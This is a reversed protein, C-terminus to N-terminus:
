VPICGQFVGPIMKYGRIRTMYYEGTTYAQLTYRKVTHYFFSLDDEGKGSSDLDGVVANRQEPTSEGFSRGAKKEALGAFQELGRMFRVQDDHGLCDDAMKLTFLHAGLDRAGPTDTRPLITEALDALMKEQDGTVPLNKLAISPKNEEHLCAPLLTIGASLFLFRRIATRRDLM